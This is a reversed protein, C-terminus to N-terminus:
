GVPKDIGAPPYNLREYILRVTRAGTTLRETVCSVGARERLGVGESRCAGDCWSGENSAWFCAALGAVSGPGPTSSAGPTLWRDRSAM